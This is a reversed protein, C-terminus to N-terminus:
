KKEIGNEQLIKHIYLYSRLVVSKFIFPEGGLVNIIYILDIYSM